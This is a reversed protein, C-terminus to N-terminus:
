NMKKLFLTFEVDMQDEVKITGGLKSPPKLNFDTLRIQKSGKLEIQGAGVNKATCQIQYKKSVGALYIDAQGSLQVPINGLNLSRSFQKFDIYMYPYQEHKMTKQLDKTMMKLGCDFKIVPISIRSFVSMLDTTTGARVCYITDTRGYSGILCSFHNVNTKGDVKLSSNSKVVWVERDQQTNQIATASLLMTVVFSFISYYFLPM